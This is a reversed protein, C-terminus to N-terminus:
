FMPRSATAMIALSIVFMLAVAALSVAAMVLSGAISRLCAALPTGGVPQALASALRYVLILAVVKVLPFGVTVFIVVSGAVGLISRLAFSSAYVMEVTDALIKGVLPIFTSTVYKATRLTVSDAVGGAARQVAMVGIFLTLTVGLLGLSAQRLLDVMGSIRFRDSIHGVLDLVATAYILPFVLDSVIVSVAFVATLVVPHLLAASAPAGSSALLALMTPLLAQKFQVLRDLTDRALGMASAFSALAIAALVLYCAIYALRGSGNPALASHLNELLACIVVLVLLQALLRSNDWLAGAFYRLMGEGLQRYDLPQGRTLLSHLMSRWDLGAPLGQTERHLEAIFDEVARVQLEDVRQDPPPVALVSSAPGFVLGAALVLWILRRM